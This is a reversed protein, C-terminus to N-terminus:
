QCGCSPGPHNHHHQTSSEGQGSGACGTQPFCYYSVFALEHFVPIATSMSIFSAVELLVKSRMSVFVVTQKM